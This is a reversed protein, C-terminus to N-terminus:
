ADAAPDDYEIVPWEESVDGAPKGQRELYARFSRAQERKWGIQKQHIEELTLGHLGSCELLKLAVRGAMLCDAAADHANEEVPVGYHAATDILKRKGKRFRDLGKDIVYPDLVTSYDLERMGWWHRKIERDLLSLDYAANYIVLPMARRDLSNLYQHIEFVAKAADKRGNARVWETTMGHVDSAGEPVEVGPDIVWDRRETFEGTEASMVGAFATIIRANEINVGTTELDFVGVEGRLLGTPPPLAM